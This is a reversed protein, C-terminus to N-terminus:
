DELMDDSLEYPEKCMTSFDQLTHIFKVLQDKNLIVEANKDTEWDDNRIFVEYGQEESVEIRLEISGGNTDQFKFFEARGM